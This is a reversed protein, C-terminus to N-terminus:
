LNIGCIYVLSVLVQTMKIGAHIYKDKVQITLLFVFFGLSFGMVSSAMVHPLILLRIDRTYIQPKYLFLCLVSLCVVVVIIFVITITNKKLMYKRGYHFSVVKNRM